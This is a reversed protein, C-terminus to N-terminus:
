QIWGRWTSNNGSNLEPTTCNPFGEPFQFEVEISTTDSSMSIIKAKSKALTKKKSTACGILMYKIAEWVRLLFGGAEPSTLTAEFEIVENSLLGSAVTAIPESMLAGSCRLIQLEQTTTGLVQTNNVPRRRVVRISPTEERPSENAINFATTEGTAHPFFIAQEIGAPYLDDDSLLLRNVMILQGPIEEPAESPDRLDLHNTSPRPRLRTVNIAEAESEEEIDSAVSGDISVSYDGLDLFPILLESAARSPSLNPKLRVEDDFSMSFMLDEESHADVSWMPSVERQELVLQEGVSQERVSQVRVPQTEVPKHSAQVNTDLAWLPPSVFSKSLGKIRRNINTDCAPDYKCPSKKRELHAQLVADEALQTTIEDAKDEGIIVSLLSPRNGARIQPSIGFSVSRPRDSTDEIHLVSLKSVNEQLVRPVVATITLPGAEAIISKNINPKNPKNEKLDVAKITKSDAEFAQTLPGPSAPSGVIFTEETLNQQHPSILRITATNSSIDVLSSVEGIIFRGTDEEALIISNNEAEM